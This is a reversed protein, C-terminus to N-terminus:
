LRPDGTAHQQWDREPIYPLNALVLDYDGPPLGFDSSVVLPLELRLANERAVAAAPEYPESATVHLDPREDLLALAIAGAGTGVDHVRAGAPLDLALEM